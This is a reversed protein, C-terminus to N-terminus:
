GPNGAPAFLADVREHLFREAGDGLAEVIARAPASQTALGVSQGAYQHAIEFRSAAKAEAFARMAEPDNVADAEHGHWRKTFENALARGRYRAPWPTGQVKDFLSTLVTENERAAIIRARAADPVRAETALLFPTGIWAGDAGAALVAALGRATAIGGAAVVPLKTNALVVQLLPLTGVDGTHGGAETGQAVLFDVGAAEAALASDRDQVQAALLVGAERVAKAFPTVDGFSIAILFPRAALTAAFLEPRLDLSWATLGVGFRREADGERALAVQAEFEDVADRYDLGIMGLGGADTVARALAGGAPPTMPANILPYRLGLGNTLYTRLMGPVEPEHPSHRGPM